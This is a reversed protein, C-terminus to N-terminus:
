KPTSPLENLPLTKNFPPPTQSFLTESTFSRADDVRDFDVTTHGYEGALCFRLPSAGKEASGEGQVRSTPLSCDSRGSTGPRSNYIDVNLSNIFLARGDNGPPPTPQGIMSLPQPQACTEHSLAMLFAFSAVTAWKAWNM